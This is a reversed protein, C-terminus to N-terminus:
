GVWEDIQTAHEDVWQRAVTGVDEGDVDVQKQMEEMEEVSIRLDVLLDVFEPAQEQLEASAAINASYSPMACAGNGTTLCGETYPTPEELQVMDYQAFVAHPHYLYLVIPEQRSYSNELQALEAAESSVVHELTIGYGALRKANQETTIYGPDADYFKNGLQDAYDNLQTVSTLGELPGGPAVAYAPVFWGQAADGYTESVIEVQEAASDALEQQNPLAVETLLDIDGRQAGAWAAAPDLQTTQLTAVGLEPRDAAIESLISNTLGAATWSFQAAQVTIGDGGGTASDAGEEASCGTVTAALVAALAVASARPRITTRLM